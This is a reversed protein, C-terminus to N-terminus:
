NLDQDFTYTVGSQIPSIKKSPVGQKNIELELNTADSTVTITFRENSSMDFGSGYGWSYVPDKIVVNGCQWQVVAQFKKSDTAVINFNYHVKTEQAPKPDDQTATCGVLVYWITLYFAFTKM